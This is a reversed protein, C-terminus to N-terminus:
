SSGFATHLSHLWLKKIVNQLKKISCSMLVYVFFYIIQLLIRPNNCSPAICHSKTTTKVKSCVSGVQQPHIDYWLEVKDNEQMFKLPRTTLNRILFYPMLTVIKTLHLKGSKKGLHLFRQWFFSNIYSQANLMLIPHDKYFIVFLYFAILNVLSILSSSIQRYQM